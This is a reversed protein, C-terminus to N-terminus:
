FNRINTKQYNLVIFLMVRCSLVNTGNMELSFISFAISETASFILLFCMLSSCAGMRNHTSLPASINVASSIFLSSKVTSSTVM